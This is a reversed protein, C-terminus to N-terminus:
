REGGGETAIEIVLLTGDTVRVSAGIEVIENSLGRSRGMRLTEGTLPFRLGSTRVGTADGGIPLLTVTTGVAGDLNQAGPGCLVRVTTPGRVIRLAVPAFAPDALLLLNALEHDLRSGGIAGILVVETAGRRVAETIALETDSADKDRPHRIVVTGNAALRDVLTPDVSDLDGVLLDPVVGTEALWGAGGDAAVVLEAAAVLDRDAPSPAGDAVVVARM